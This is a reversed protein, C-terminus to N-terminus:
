KQEEKVSKRMPARADGVLKSIEAVREQTFVEEILGHRAFVGLSHLVNYRAPAYEHPIELGLLDELTEPASLSLDLIIALRLDAPFYALCKLSTGCAQAYAVPDSKRRSLSIRTLASMFRPVIALVPGRRRPVWRESQSLEESSSVLAACVSEPLAEQEASSHAGSQM